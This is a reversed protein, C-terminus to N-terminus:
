LKRLAKRENDSIEILPLVSAIANTLENFDDFSNM